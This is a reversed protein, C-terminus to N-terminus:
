ANNYHIFLPGDYNTYQTGWFQEIILVNDYTVDASINGFVANKTTGNYRVYFRGMHIMNPHTGQDKYWIDADTGIVEQLFECFGLWTNPTEYYASQVVLDTFWEKQESYFPTFDKGYTVLPCSRFVPNFPLTPADITDNVFLDGIDTVQREVRVTLKSKACFANGITNLTVHTPLVTADFPEDVFWEEDLSLGYQDVFLKAVARTTKPNYGYVTPVSNNIFLDELVVNEFTILSSGRYNGETGKYLMTARISYVDDGANIPNHRVAGRVEPEDLASPKLNNLRNFSRSLQELWPETNKM